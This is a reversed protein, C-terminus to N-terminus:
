FLLVIDEPYYGFFLTEIKETPIIVGKTFNFTLTVVKYELDCQLPAKKKTLPKATINSYANKCIYRDLHM